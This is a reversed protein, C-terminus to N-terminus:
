GGHGGDVHSGFRRAYDAVAARGLTSHEGVTDAAAQAVKAPIMGQAQRMAAVVESAIRAAPWQRVREELQLRTVLGASDVTVAVAGDGGVATASLASVREHLARAQGLREEAEAVWGDLWREAADIGPVPEM